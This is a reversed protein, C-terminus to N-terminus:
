KNVNEEELPKNSIPYTGKELVLRLSQCWGEVILVDKYDDLGKELSRECHKLVRRVQNEGLM